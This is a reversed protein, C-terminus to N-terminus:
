AQTTERMTTKVRRVTSRPAVVKTKAAESILYEREPESREHKIFDYAKTKRDKEGHTQIKLWKRKMSEPDHRNLGLEYAREWYDSAFANGPNAKVYKKM